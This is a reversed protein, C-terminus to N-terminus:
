AGQGKIMQCRGHQDAAGSPLTIRLDVTDYDHILVDRM